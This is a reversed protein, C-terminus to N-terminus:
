SRWAQCCKHRASIAGSGDFCGAEEQPQFSQVRRLRAILSMRKPPSWCPFSMERREFTGIFRHQLRLAGPGATMASASRWELPSLESSLPVVM